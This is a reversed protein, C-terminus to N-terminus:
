AEPGRMSGLVSGLIALASDVEDDSVLLPPAVRIADPRVANVLLGEALAAASVEKAIPETLQAALLLGAGRVTVVGPLRALGDTLRAGAKLARGCVDEEEM